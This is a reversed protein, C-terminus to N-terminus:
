PLAIPVPTPRDIVTGDGVQGGNNMGWCTLTTATAACAHYLGVDLAVLDSGAGPIPVPALATNSDGTGLLGNQGFGWCELGGNVVACSHDLDSSAIRTVGSSLKPLKEPREQLRLVGAIGDGLAGDDALGWGWAIGDAVAFSQSGGAAIFSVNATLDITPAPTDQNGVAEAGIQGHGDSGWCYSAGNVVACTHVMGCAIATVPAPLDVAQAPESISNTNGIGLRGYTSDGWCWAKGNAVACIHSTGCCVDTVGTELGKVTTPTLLATKPDNRTLGAVGSLGWCKLAGGAVACTQRLSAAVVSVGSELGPVQTPVLRRQTTGDGLQGFQNDGWCRLGGGVVACTHYYGAAISTLNIPGQSAGGDDPSGADVAPSGADVAATPEPAPGDYGLVGVPRMRDVSTGDGLQYHYNAGWCKMSYETAACSHGDGVALAVVGSGGSVVSVPVASSYRGHGLSEATWPLGWCQVGGNAIVCSNLQQKSAYIRTVGEDLGPVAIPAWQVDQFETGLGLAQAQNKGWCWAAGKVVACTREYGAAVATAGSGPPLNTVQMPTKFPGANNGVGIEGGQNYGWCFVGGDAVACTHADCSVATVPSPLGQVQVPITRTELTGDGIQGSANSGWCWAKGDQVACTHYLGGCLDTVGSTLGVVQVPKLSNTTTGDGLRGYDNKGWCKVGGQVVACYPTVITAGSDLGSVQTPVPRDVTTGDGLEGNENEGWCLVAGAIVACTHYTGVAISTVNIPHPARATDVPRDPAVDRADRSGDTPGGDVSAGERAADITAPSDAAADTTAPSDAAADTIAPSDAADPSTSLADSAQDPVADAFVPGEALDPVQPMVDSTSTGTADIVPGADQSPMWDTVTCVAHPTTAPLYDHANAVAKAPLDKRNWCTGESVGPPIPAGRGVCLYGDPCCDRGGPNCVVTGSKPSPEFGCAAASAGVALVLFARVQSMKM